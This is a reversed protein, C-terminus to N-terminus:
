AVGSARAAGANGVGRRPLYLMQRREKRAGPLTRRRALFKLPEDVVKDALLDGVAFAQREAEVAIVGDDAAADALLEVEEGLVEGALDFRRLCVEHRVQGRM